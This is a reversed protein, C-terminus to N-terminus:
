NGKEATSSAPFLPLEARVQYGGGPDPGAAVTGGLAAARERMGILGHGTGTGTGPGIEAGASAPKTVTERGVATRSESSLRADNAVTVSLSKAGYELLVRVRTGPAHRRANTMAEQIIRYAALQVGTALPVPAGRRDVDVQSGSARFAGVLEDLDTLGPLPRLPSPDDDSQRLLGVTARLEDLAARSTEKIQALALYAADPNDRMLHHAVGAQANVLTIHHAVVDHLERAIRLREETVARRAEQERTREAREARAEVEALYTRRSRVTDGFATALLPLDFLGLVAGSTWSEAHALAYVATILAASAVGAPWALSRRRCSALTYMAVLSAAPADYLPTVTIRLVDLALTGALVALPWRSRVTLPLCSAVPLLVPGAAASTWGHVGFAPAVTFVIALVVAPAADRVRRDARLRAPITLTAGVGKRYPGAGKARPATVAGRASGAIV